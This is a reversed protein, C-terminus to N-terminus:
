AGGDIPQYSFQDLPFVCDSLLGRFDCQELASVLLEALLKKLRLSCASQPMSACAKAIVVFNAVCTM